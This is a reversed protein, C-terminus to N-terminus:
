AEEGVALTTVKKGLSCEEGVMLTTAIGSVAPAPIELEEIFLKPKSIAKTRKMLQVETKTKNDLM